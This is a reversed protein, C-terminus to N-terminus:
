SISKEGERERRICERSEGRMEGLSEGHSAKKQFTNEKARAENRRSAERQDKKKGLYDM